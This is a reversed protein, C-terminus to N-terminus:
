QIYYFPPPASLHPPPVPVCAPGATRGVAPDLWRLLIPPGVGAVGPIAIRQSCGPPRMTVEMVSRTNVQWIRLTTPEPDGGGAGGAGGGSVIGERLAFLGVASALNGCNQDHEVRQETLSVQGFEYDLDCSAQTSAGVIEPSNILCSPWRQLWHPPGMRM